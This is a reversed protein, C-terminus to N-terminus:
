ETPKAWEFFKCQKDKGFPCVYFHKGNNPGIKLVTRMICRKAHNCFPFHLDAWEFYDCRAERPLSCSYFQRGKNEGDKKVVHLVSPRNHKSCHPSNANLPSTGGTMNVRPSSISFPASSGNSAATHETKQKKQLQTFSCNDANTRGDVTNLSAAWGESSRRKSSVIQMNNCTNSISIGEPSMTKSLQEKYLNSEASFDSLVLTTLGFATRRNIKVESLAKGFNNCPYKILGSDSTADENVSSAPAEPRPTLCADCNKDSPKNILTCVECAWHEEERKAVYDESGQKCAWGLISNRKPLKSKFFLFIFPCMFLVVNLNTCFWM